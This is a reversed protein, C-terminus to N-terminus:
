YNVSSVRFQVIQGDMKMSEHKRRNKPYLFVCRSFDSVFMQVRVVVTFMLTGTILGVFKKNHSPLM